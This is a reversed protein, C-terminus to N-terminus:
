YLELEPELGLRKERIYVYLARKNALAEIFSSFQISINNSSGSASWSRINKASVNVYKYIFSKM